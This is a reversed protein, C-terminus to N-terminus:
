RDGEKSKSTLQKLQEQFFAEEEKSLPTEKRVVDEKAWDPLTEKRQNGKYNNTKKKPTTKAEQLKKVQSLAEEPSYIKKQAWDNAISMMMNQNLSAFDQVVLMYHTLMNIVSDPLSSQKKLTEITFRENSSVFGGKQTKIAKLFLLPAITDCSIIVNIEDDSFGTLRLTNMRLQARDTDTFQEKPSLNGVKATVEQKKRSHYGKYILQKFDKEVVRNTVYDISQKVYDFMELENIGYLQHFLEVTRKLDTQLQKNDIHLSEVLSMFFQWDFTQTIGTIPTNVSPETVIEKVKSLENEKASLRSSDFQFVDMFSKTVEIYDDMDKREYHFFLSLDEVKEYGLRDILLLSLIDDHLFKSPSMVPQIEYIFHNVDELPKAFTKLLGVAELKKRADFFHPIGLDLQNLLVSHPQLRKDGNIKEEILLLNFFGIADTGVIPQYLMNLVVYDAESVHYAKIVSFKDKPKLKEWAESM